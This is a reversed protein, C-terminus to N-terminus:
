KGVKNKKKKILKKNQEKAKKKKKKKKNGDKVKKFNGSLNVSRENSSIEGNLMRLMSQEDKHSESSILFRPSIGLDKNNENYMNFQNNMQIPRNPSYLKSMSNEEIYEMELHPKIGVKIM